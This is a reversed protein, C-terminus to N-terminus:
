HSDCGCSKGTHLLISGLTHVSHYGALVTGVNDSAVRRTGLVMGVVDLAQIGDDARLDRISDTVTGFHWETGKAAHLIWTAIGPLYYGKGNNPSTDLTLCKGPPSSWRSTAMAQDRGLSMLLSM